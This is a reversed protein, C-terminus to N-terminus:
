KTDETGFSREASPQEVALQKLYCGVSFAETDGCGTAVGENAMIPSSLRTAAEVEYTDQPQYLNM